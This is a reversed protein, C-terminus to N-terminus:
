CLFTPNPPSLLLILKTFNNYINLYSLGQLSSLGTIPFYIYTIFIIIVNIIIAVTILLVIYYVLYYLLYNYEVIILSM